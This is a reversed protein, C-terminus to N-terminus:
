FPGLGVAVALYLFAATLVLVMLQLGIVWRFWKAYSVVTLGLAILLVPNTPYLVNSFGDGFAFALVAAQRTIGVLDALPAVLPMILFAKASASGIFFNMGLVVLYVLLAAAYSPAGAIASAARHLLTDMIGGSAIIYKVSSAMLILVIGPAIGGLGAAFTALVPRFRMGAFLASGIGGALFLLGVLPLAATSLGEVLSAGLIVALILVVMALFWAIARHLGAEDPGPERNIEGADEATYKMREPGDETYVPSTEPRKEVRRAHRVLFACLLAYVAAFVLVRFGAGSFLPLGALRQAIGISFPNAVAASFGFGVALLSMGLGTLSDWGMVYALTVAIPVLAVAEEFIGLLAGISMFFLAVVALLRYKHRGFRKVVRRIVAKLVGARDLLAFSGGIFLIFVIIVSIMLGDPGGLVELPATFWRWVPYAPQEVLRYSGPVIIERGELEAREYSGAPVTMTLAGAVLMLALLIAASSLFAKKGIHIGAKEKGIM